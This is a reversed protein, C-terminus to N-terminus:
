NNAIDINGAINTKYNVQTDIDNITIYREEDAANTLTLNIKNSGLFYLTTLRTYDKGSVNMVEGEVAINDFALQTSEESFTMNFIDYSAPIGSVKVKLSAPLTPASTGVNVQSVIRDLTIKRNENGTVPGVEDVFAFAELQDGSTFPASTNVSMMGSESQVTYAYSDTRQQSQFRHQAVFVLKYEQDNILTIPVEINSPDTIEVFDSMDNVYVYTGDNKKHYVGYWLTNVSTSAAASKVEFTVDPVITYILTAPADVYSDKQCSALLFVSLLIILTRYM